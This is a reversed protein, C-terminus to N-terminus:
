KSELRSDIPVCIEITTGRGPRSSVDCRGGLMGARRALNMLGSCARSAPRMPGSATPGSANQVFGAGNDIVRLKIWDGDTTFSAEVRTANAHKIVNQLVEKVMLVLNHRLTASIRRAPLHLPFDLECSVSSNRLVKAIQESLFSATSDLTDCEPSTAWVLDRITGLLGSASASLDEFASKVNPAEAHQQAQKLQVALQTLDAGLHDHIDRALREREEFLALDQNRRILTAMRRRLRAQVFLLGMVASCAFATIGLWVAGPSSSDFKKQLVALLPRQVKWNSSNPLGDRAGYIAVVRTKPANPNEGVGALLFDSVGDGNLDGAASAFQGIHGNSRDGDFTWTPKRKLGAKSGYYILAVGEDKQGHEADPVGVILDSYGDGNLDGATSVGQGLHLQTRNGEVTWSPAKELGKASGHFVFAAGENVESRGAFWAGIAVDDFGDGNVDGAAGVGYGFFQEGSNKLGFVPYEATWAPRNELGMPSGLYLYAKGGRKYRGTFTMDGVLLDDFGDGNVDGARSIAAGFTSGAQEASAVWDPEAKLGYPSGHFALVVIQRSEPESALHACVAIDEYGDSNVDGAAAVSYALRFRGVSTALTQTPTPSLGNTSGFFLHLAGGRAVDLDGQCESVLADNIGDGNVDSLAVSIGLHQNPRQGDFTWSPQDRLGQPGGQFLAVKGRAEAELPGGLLVDGFHDGNVDGGGAVLSRVNASGLFM